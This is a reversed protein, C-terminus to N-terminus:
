SGAQSVSGTLALDAEDEKPPISPEIPRRLSREMTWITRLGKIELLRLM